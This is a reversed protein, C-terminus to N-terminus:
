ILFESRSLQNLVGLNRRTSNEGPQQGAAYGSVAMIM